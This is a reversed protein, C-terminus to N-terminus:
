HIMGVNEIVNKSLSELFFTRRARLQQQQQEYHMTIDLFYLHEVQHVSLSAKSTFPMEDVVPLQASSASTSFRLMALVSNVFVIVGRGVVWAAKALMGMIGSAHVADDATDVRLEADLAENLALCIGCNQKTSELFSTYSPHHNYLSDYTGNWIYGAQLQLM